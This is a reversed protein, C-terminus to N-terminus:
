NDPLSLIEKAKQHIELPFIFKEKSVHIQGILLQSIRWYGWKVEQFVM